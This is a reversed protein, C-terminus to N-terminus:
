LSSVKVFVRSITENQDIAKVTIKFNKGNPKHFIHSHIKKIYGIFVSGKFVKVAYKDFENNSELEFILSDGISLFNPALQQSRVNAIDTVFALGKLPNFDALFEFNDTPIMGQTHALLYYKDFKFTPDIEWFDYFSQIDSRETKM